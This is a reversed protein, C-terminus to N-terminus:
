FCKSITATLCSFKSVTFYNYQFLCINPLNVKKINIKAKYVHYHLAFEKVNPQLAFGAPFIVIYTTLTLIHNAFKIFHEVLM